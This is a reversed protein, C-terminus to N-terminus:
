HDHDYEARDFRGIKIFVRQGPRLRVRGHNRSETRRDPLSKKTEPFVFTLAADPSPFRDMGM